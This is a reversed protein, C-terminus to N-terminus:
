QSETFFHYFLAAALLAPLQYLYFGNIKFVLVSPLQPSPRWKSAQGKKKLPGGRNAITIKFPYVLLRFFATLIPLV